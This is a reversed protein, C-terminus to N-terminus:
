CFLIFYLLAFCVVGIPILNFDYWEFHPILITTTALEIFHYVLLGLATCDNGTGILNNNGKQM